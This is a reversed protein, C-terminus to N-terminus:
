RADHLTRKSQRYEKPGLKFHGWYEWEPKWNSFGEVHSLYHRDILLRVAALLWERGEVLIAAVPKRRICMWDRWRADLEWCMGSPGNHWEASKKMWEERCIVRPPKCKLQKFTWAVRIEIPVM